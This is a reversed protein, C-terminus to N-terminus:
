VIRNATISRFGTWSSPITVWWFRVRSAAEEVAIGLGEKQFKQGSQGVLATISHKGFQKTYTATNEVLWSYTQSQKHELSGGTPRFPGINQILFKMKTYNLDTGVSSKLVLGKIPEISLFGNAIMRATNIPARAIDIDLYPTALNLADSAAVGYNNGWLEDYASIVGDSTTYFGEFQGSPFRVPYNPAIQMARDFVRNNSIAKQDVYSLNTNLGFRVKDNWAKSEANFRASYRKYFNSKIM